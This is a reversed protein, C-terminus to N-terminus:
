TSVEVADAPRTRILVTPGRQAIGYEDEIDQATYPALRSTTVRGGSSLGYIPAGNEVGTLGWFDATSGDGDGDNDLIWPAAEIPNGLADALEVALEAMQAPDPTYGTEGAAIQMGDIHRLIETVTRTM